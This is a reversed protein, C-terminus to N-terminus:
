CGLRGVWGKWCNTLKSYDLFVSPWVLNLEVTSDGILRARVGAEDLCGSPILVLMSIRGDRSNKEKWKALIFILRHELPSQSSGIYPNITNSPHVVEVEAESDDSETGIVDDETTESM